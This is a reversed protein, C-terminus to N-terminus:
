RGILLGVEQGGDPGGAGGHRFYEPGERGRVGEWRDQDEGSGDLHDTPDDQAPSANGRAIRDYRAAALDALDNHYSRAMYRKTAWAIVGTADVGASVGYEGAVRDAGARSMIGVLDDMSRSCGGYRDLAIPLLKTNALRTQFATGTGWHRDCARTKSAYEQPVQEARVECIRRNERTCGDGLVTKFELLVDDQTACPHRSSKCYSLMGGKLAGDGRMTRLRHVTGEPLRRAARARQRELRYEEMRAAPLCAAFWSSAGWESRACTVGVLRRWEKFLRGAADDHVSERTKRCEAPNATLFELGRGTVEVGHAEPEEGPLDAGIYMGVSAEFAAPIRGLLYAIRIHYHLTALYDGITPASSFLIASWACAERFAHKGGHHRGGPAWAEDRLEARVRAEVARQAQKQGRVGVEESGKGLDAASVPMGVRALGEAGGAAAEVARFAAEFERAMPVGSALIRGNRVGGPGYSAEGILDRVAPGGHTACQRWALEVGGLYGPAAQSATGARVRRAEAQGHSIEGLVEARLVELM